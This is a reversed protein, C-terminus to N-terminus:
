EGEQAADTISIEGSDTAYTGQHATGSSDTVTFLIQTADPTLYGGTVTAGAADIGQASAFGAWADPLKAAADTGLLRSLAEADDMSVPSGLIASSPASDSETASVTVYSKGDYVTWATGDYTLELSKGAVDLSVRAGQQDETADGTVDAEDLQSGESVAWMALARALSARTTGSLGSLRSAHTFTIGSLRISDEQDKDSTTEDRTSEDSDEADQEPEAVTETAQTKTPTADQSGNRGLAMDVVIGIVITAIIVAVALVAKGRGDDKPEQWGSGM